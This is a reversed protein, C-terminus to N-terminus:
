LASRAFARVSEFCRIFNSVNKNEAGRILVQKETNIRYDPRVGFDSM